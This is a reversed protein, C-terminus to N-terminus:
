KVRSSTNPSGSEWQTRTMTSGAIGPSNVMRGSIMGSLLAPCHQDEDDTDLTLPGFAVSFFVREITALPRALRVHVEIQVERQVELARSLTRIRIMVACPPVSATIAQM